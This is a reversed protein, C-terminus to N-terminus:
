RDFLNQRPSHKRCKYINVSFAPKHCLITANKLFIKPKVFIIESANLFTTKILVSSHVYFCPPPKLSGDHKWLITQFLEPASPLFLSNAFRSCTIGVTFTDSTASFSIDSITRPRRSLNFPIAKLKYPKRPTVFIHEMTASHLLIVFSLSM